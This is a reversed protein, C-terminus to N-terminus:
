LFKIIISAIIAGALGIFAGYLIYNRGSRREIGEKREENSCNKTKLKTIDNKNKNIKEKTEKGNDKLYIVDEKITNIKTSMVGINTKIDGIDVIVQDIKSM